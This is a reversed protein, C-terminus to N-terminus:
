LHFYNLKPSLSPSHQVSLKEFTGSNWSELNSPGQLIGTDWIPSKLRKLVLRNGVIRRINTWLQRAVDTIQLSAKTSSIHWNLLICSGQLFSHITYTYKCYVNADTDRIDFQKPIGKLHYLILIKFALIHQDRQIDWLM